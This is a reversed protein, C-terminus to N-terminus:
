CAALEVAPQFSCLHYLRSGRYLDKGPQTYGVDTNNRKEWHFFLLLSNATLGNRLKLYKMIGFDSKCQYVPAANVVPYGCQHSMDYVMTDRVFM